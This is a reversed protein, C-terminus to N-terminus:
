LPVIEGQEAIIREAVAVDDPNDISCFTYGPIKAEVVHIPLGHELARLQELGEVQELAGPALKVYQQLSEPRYAYIGVHRFYRTDSQKPDRFHPIRAKSFYLARGNAAFVVYTGANNKHDVQIAPTAIQIEANSRMYEVLVELIAPRTLVADGQLNILVQDNAGLKGYAEFMRESGNRCDPSTMVVKAAFSESHKAIREDETAIIVERIGRVAKAIRWVRYLMSHGAIKALPKGPFRTSGYRAPIVIIANM